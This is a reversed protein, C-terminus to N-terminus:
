ITFDENRPIRVSLQGGLIGALERLDPLLSLLVSQAGGGLIVGSCSDGHECEIVTRGIENIVDQPARDPYTVLYPISLADLLLAAEIAYKPGRPDDRPPDIFVFDTSKEMNLRTRLFTFWDQSWLRIRGEERNSQIQGVLTPDIDNVDLEFEDFIDVSRALVRSALVWSGAARGETGAYNLANFYAHNLFAERHQWVSDLVVGSIPVRGAGAHTDLYCFGDDERRRSFSRAVKELSAALLFHSWIISAPSADSMSLAERTEAVTGRQGNFRSALVQGIAVHSSPLNSM